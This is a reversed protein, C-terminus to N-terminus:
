AASGPFVKLEGIQFFKRIGWKALQAHTAGLDPFTRAGSPSRYVGYPGFIAWESSGEVPVVNVLVFRDGAAAIEEFQRDDMPAVRDLYSTDIVIIEM